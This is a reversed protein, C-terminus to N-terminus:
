RRRVEELPGSGTGQGCRGCIAELPVGKIEPLFALVFVSEDGGRQGERLQSQTMSNKSPSRCSRKTREFCRVIHFIKSRALM